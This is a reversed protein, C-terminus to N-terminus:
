RRTELSLRRLLPGLIPSGTKMAVRVQIWVPGRPVGRLEAAGYPEDGVPAPWGGARDLESRSRSSRVQIQLSAGAPRSAEWRLWVRGENTLRVPETIASGNAANAETLLGGGLTSKTGVYLRGLVGRLALGEQGPPLPHLKEFSGSGAATAKFSAAYIASQKTRPDTGIAYLEDDGIRDFDFVSLGELGAIPSLKGDSLLYAGTDAGVLSFREFDRHRLGFYPARLPGPALKVAAWRKGDFKYFDFSTKPGPKSPTNDVVTFSAYLADKLPILGYFRAFQKKRDPPYATLVQRWSKGNDDSRLVAAYGVNNKVSGTSVYMSGRWFGLDWIHVAYTVNRLKTWHEGGDTSRYVNGFDWNETADDGPIFLMGANGRIYIAGQEQVQLVRRPQAKAPDWIYVDGGDSGAPLPSDLFFLRERMYFIGTVLGFEPKGRYLETWKGPQPALALGQATARVGDYSLFTEPNALDLEIRQDPSCAILSALLLANM